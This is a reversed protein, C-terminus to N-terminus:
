VDDGENMYSLSHKPESQLENWITQVTQRCLYYAFGRRNLYGMLKHQFQEFPLTEVRRL